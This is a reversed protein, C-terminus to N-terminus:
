WDDDDDQVQNWILSELIHYKYGGSVSTSTGDDYYYDWILRRDDCPHDRLYINAEDSLESLEYNEDQSCM